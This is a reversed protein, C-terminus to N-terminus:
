GSRPLAGPKVIRYVAYFCVATGLLFVLKALGLNNPLLGIEGLLYTWDHEGGGVLPLQQRRADAIYGSINLLNEGIWWMMVWFGLRSGDHKFSVACVAPLALQFITGALMMIFKPMFGFIVHGAEHFALNVFDIPSFYPESRLFPFYAVTLLVALVIPGWVAKPDDKM